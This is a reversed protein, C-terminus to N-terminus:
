QKFSDLKEGASCLIQPEPMNGLAINSKSDKSFDWFAYPEDIEAEVLLRGFGIFYRGIPGQSITWISEQWTERSLDGQILSDFYKSAYIWINEDPHYQVKDIGNCYVILLICLVFLSELRIVLKKM